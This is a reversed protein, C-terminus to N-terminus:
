GSLLIRKKLAETYPYNPGYGETKPFEDVVGLKQKLLALAAIPNMNGANFGFIGRKECFDQLKKVDAEPWNQVPYDGSIEGANQQRRNMMLQYPDVAAKGTPSGASQTQAKKQAIRSQLEAMFDFEVIPSTENM